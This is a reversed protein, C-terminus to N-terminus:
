VTPVPGFRSASLLFPYARPLSINEPGTCCIPPTPDTNQLSWPEGLFYNGVESVPIPAHRPTTPVTGPRPWRHGHENSGLHGAQFTVSFSCTTPWQFSLIPLKFNGPRGGNLTLVPIVYGNEVELPLGPVITYVGRM